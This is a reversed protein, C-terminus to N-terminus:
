FGYFSVKEGYSGGSLNDDLAGGDSGTGPSGTQDVEEASSSREGESPGELTGTGTSKSSKRKLKLNKRPSTMQIPGIKFILDNIGFPDSGMLGSQGLPDKNGNPKPSPPDGPTKWGEGVLLGVTDLVLSGNNFSAQSQAIIKGM